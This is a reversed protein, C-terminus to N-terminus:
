YRGTPHWRIGKTQERALWEPDSVEIRQVPHEESWLAITPTALTAIALRPKVPDWKLSCVKRDFELVAVPKVDRRPAWIWVTYPMNENRTALFESQASWLVTGVGQRPMPKTLDPTITCVTRKPNDNAVDSKQLNAITSNEDSIVRPTVTENEASNPDTVIRHTPHTTSTHKFEATRSLTLVNVMRCVEDYSGVALTTGDKGWACCKIGLANSYAQYRAILEGKPSYLLLLFEFPSDRVFVSEGSPSWGIEELDSSAVPFYKVCEWQAKCAYIGVFDKCEKRHAVSVFNGDPSFSVGLAGLKPNRMMAENEGTLSWVSIHLQFDAITLINRSDPAWLVDIIGGVGESIRCSFEDPYAMSFVQVTDIKSMACYLLTSDPSWELSSAPGACTFLQTVSLDSVLRVVIRHKASANALFRGDPSFKCLGGIHKMVRGETTSESAPPPEVPETM